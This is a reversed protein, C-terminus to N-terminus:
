KKIIKQIHVGSSTVVKLVYIGKSLNTLNVREHQPALNVKKGNFDIVSVEKIEEQNALKIHIFDVTPNPYVTIKSEKLDKVGLSEADTLSWAFSPYAVGILSSINTWNLINLEFLNAPDILVPAYQPSASLSGQWNWRGEGDAEGIASVFGSIWYQGAPLTVQNGGNAQTLDIIFTETSLEGSMEYYEPGINELSLIAQDSDVPSGLPEGNNDAFIFVNFGTIHPALPPTGSGFGRFTLEGITTDATLEFYDAGYVGNGDDGETSVLAQQNDALRDIILNQAYSLVSVLLGFCLLIRKMDILIKFNVSSFVINM